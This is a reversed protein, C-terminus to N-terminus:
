NLLKEVKLREEIKETIQTIVNISSTVFLKTYDKEQIAGHAIEGRKSIFDDLKKSTQEVTNKHLTWNSAINKVGLTKEFLLIINKTKPTNLQDVLIHVEQRAIKKWGDGSLERWFLEHKERKVRSAVLSAIAESLNKVNDVRNIHIDFCEHIVNEIYAEFAACLLVVASKNLSEFEVGRKGRDNGGNKTHINLLNKVDVLREEFVKRARL